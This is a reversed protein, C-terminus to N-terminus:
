FGPPMRISREGPRGYWDFPDIREMRQERRWQRELERNMVEAEEAEETEREEIYDEMLKQVRAQVQAYEEVGEYAYRNYGNEVILTELYQIRDETDPHTSIWAPISPSDDREHLEVMVNWLGDAAYGSTALIRTGLIDAQREQDRSYDFFMLNNLIGGAYPVLGVVNGFMTADVMRQFGHSLVAHSLEHALLGALEAESEMALIAGAHIFIKGGPLAFANVNEDLIVYFEYDMDRGTLDALRDGIDNVYDTVRVDEVLPLQEQAVEVFKEGVTDEGQLLLLALQLTPIAAFPSGTAFVSLAGTFVSAIASERLDARLDRQFEEFMEDAFGRFNDARSHEPLLLSFQRAAISAELWKEADALHYIYTEVLQAETPYMSAARELVNLAEEPRDRDRLVAALRLYGPIFEPHEEILLELPVFIRTELGQEIGATSERWYVAGAPSLLDPDSFPVARPRFEGIDISFPPKVQRYLAEANTYNGSLYLRDAELLIQLRDIDPAFSSLPDDEDETPDTTAKPINGEGRDGEIEWRDPESEAPAAREESSTEIDSAEPIEPTNKTESRSFKLTKTLRVTPSIAYVESPFGGLSLLSGLAILPLKKLPHM